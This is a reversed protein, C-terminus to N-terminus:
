GAPYGEHSTTDASVGEPWFAIGMKTGASPSLPEMAKGFGLVAEFKGAEDVGYVVATRYQRREGPTPEVVWLEESFVYWDAVRRNLISVHVPNLATRWRILSAELEDADEIRVIKGGATDSTYDRQAWTFTSTLLDKLAAMDGGCVAALLTEHNELNRLARDPLPVGASDAPGDTAPYYRQWAYEGTIGNADDTTFMTVTQVTKMDGDDIWLRTPVNEIFMYWDTTLQTLIRSAQPDARDVSAKYMEDIAPRGSLVAISGPDLMMAFHPYDGITEMVGVMKTGYESRIHNESKAISQLLPEVHDNTPM